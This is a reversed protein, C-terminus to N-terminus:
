HVLELEYLSFFSFQIVHDYTHIINAIHTFLKLLLLFIYCFYNTVTTGYHDTIYMMEPEHLM